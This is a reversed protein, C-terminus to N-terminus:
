QIFIWRLMKKVTKDVALFLLEEIPQQLQQIKQTNADLSILNKKLSEELFFPLNQTVFKSIRDGYM